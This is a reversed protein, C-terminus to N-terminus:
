LNLPGLLARRGDEVDGVDDVPIVVDDQARFITVSQGSAYLESKLNRFSMFITNKKQNFIENTLQEDSLIDYSEVLGQYVQESIFRESEEISELPTIWDDRLKSCMKNLVDDHSIFMPTRSKLINTIFVSAIMGIAAIAGLLGFLLSAMFYDFSKKQCRDERVYYDNRSCKNYYDAEWSLVGLIAGYAGITLASFVLRKIKLAHKLGARHERERVVLAQNYGELLHILKQVKRLDGIFHREREYQESFVDQSQPIKVGEMLELRGLLIAHFSCLETLKLFIKENERSKNKRYFERACYFFYNRHSRDLKKIVEYRHFIGGNFWKYIFTTDQRNPLIISAGSQMLLAVVEPHTTLHIPTNYGKDYANVVGLSGELSLYEKVLDVHNYNVAVHLPTRDNVNPDFWIPSKGPLHQNYIDILRFFLDVEGLEALWHFCNRGNEDVSLLNSRMVKRTNPSNILKNLLIDKVFHVGQPQMLCVLLYSLGDEDRHAYKIQLEEPAIDSADICWKAAKWKSEGILEFLNKGLSTSAIVGSRGQM